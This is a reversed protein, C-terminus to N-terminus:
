GAAPDLGEVLPVLAAQLKEWLPVAAASDSRACAEELARAADAGDAQGLATLVSKLSHAGRRLAQLDGAALAAAGSRLDEPFQAACSARFAQYLAVDGGFYRAVAAQRAPAIPGDRLPGGASAPAPTAPSAGLADRVCHQLEAVGVPKHLLRTVGMAQLRARTGADLGASLVAVEANGRLGPEAQWQQLLDTGSAGPMMLDTLLLQVPGLRRLLALAEAVNAASHLEVPEDELALEVFRRISADDDVLLVRPRTM